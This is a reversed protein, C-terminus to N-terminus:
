GGTPQSGGDQGSRGDRSPPDLTRLARYARRTLPYVWRRFPLFKLQWLGRTLLSTTRVQTDSYGLKRLLKGMYLNMQAISKPKANRRWAEVRSPDPATKAKGKWALETEPVVDSDAGSMLQRQEFNTGVFTCLRRLTPEPALMLDEYRVITFSEPAIQQGLRLACRTFRSWELCAVPLSLARGWSVKMLSRVVDRGDRIICIIKAQPYLQLITKSAFLHGCSKEAPRDKGHKRAYATLIARFLEPHGMEGERFAALVEEIQLQVNRIEDDELARRVLERVAEPTHRQQDLTFFKNFFQTEPLMAVTSHRDFMVALATTGSRQCGVIFIPRFPASSPTPDQM